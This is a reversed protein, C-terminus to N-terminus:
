HPLHLSERTPEAIHKLARSAHNSDCKRAIDALSIVGVLRKDRNVVPMRRVQLRAMNEAATEVGEDEYCYLVHDTMVERVMTRSPDKGRAVARVAIDRDTLMGVLRDNESVPLFGVDDQAMMRAAKDITMDPDAIDVSRTMAERIQM